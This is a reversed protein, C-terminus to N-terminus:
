GDGTKTPYFLDGNLIRFFYQQVQSNGWEDPTVHCWLERCFDVFYENQEEVSCAMAKLFPNTPNLAHASKIMNIGKKRWGDYDGKYELFFYPMCQIMYGFYANFAPHNMFHTFGFHAVTNLRSELVDYPPLLVDTSPERLFKHLCEYYDVMLMGYWLETGACLLSRINMPDTEWNSFAVETASAWDGREEYEIIIKNFHLYFDEM